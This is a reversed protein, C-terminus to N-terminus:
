VRWEFRENEALTTAALEWYEVSFQGGYPGMAHLM